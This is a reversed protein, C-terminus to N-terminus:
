NKKWKPSAIGYGFLRRKIQSNYPTTYIGLYKVGPPMWDKPTVQIKTDKTPSSLLVVYNNPLRKPPPPM